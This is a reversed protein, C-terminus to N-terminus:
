WTFDKPVYENAWSRKPPIGFDMCDDDKLKFRKPQDVSRRKQDIDGVPHIRKKSLRSLENSTDEFSLEPFFLASRRNL